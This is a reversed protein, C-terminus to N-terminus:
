VKRFIELRRRKEAYARLQNIDKQEERQLEMKEKTKKSLYEVGEKIIFYMKSFILDVIIVLTKETETKESYYKGRIYSVIAYFLV